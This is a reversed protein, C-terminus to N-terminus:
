KASNLLKMFESNPIDADVNMHLHIRGDDMSVSLENIAIPIDCKLKNRVIISILKSIANKLLVTGINLKLEDM